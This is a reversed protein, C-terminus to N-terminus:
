KKSDENFGGLIYDPNKWKKLLSFLKTPFVDRQDLSLLSISNSLHVISFSDETRRLIFVTRMKDFEPYNEFFPIYWSSITAVTIIDKEIKQVGINALKILFPNEIETFDHELAQSWKEKTYIKTSIGDLGIFDDDILDLVAPNRESYLKFYTEVFEKSRKNYEKEM